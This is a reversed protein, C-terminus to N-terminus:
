FTPFTLCCHSQSASCRSASVVKGDLKEDFIGLPHKRSIEHVRDIQFWASIPFATSESRDFPGLFPLEGRYFIEASTHFPRRDIGVFVPLKEEIKDVAYRNSQEDGGSLVPREIASVAIRGLHLGEFATLINAIRM